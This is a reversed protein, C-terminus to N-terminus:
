MKSVDSSDTSIKKQSPLQWSPRLVLGISDDLSKNEKADNDITDDDDGTSSIYISSDKEDLSSDSDELISCANSGDGKLLQIESDSEVESSILSDRGENASIDKMSSAIERENVAQLVDSTSHDDNSNTGLNSVSELSVVHLSEGEEISMNNNVTIINDKIDSSTIDDTVMESSNLSVDPKITDHTSDSLSSVQMQDNDNGSMRKITEEIVSADHRESQIHEVVQNEPLTDTISHDETIDKVDPNSVSELSVVNLSEVEEFSSMDNNGTIVINYNIDSNTIDDTVMESSNLSIDPKIIDHTSDSMTSVRQQDDDNGPMSEITEVVVSADQRESQIHEVVQNETHIDTIPHHEVIDKVDPLKSADEAALPIASLEDAMIESNTENSKQSFTEAASSKGKSYNIHDNEYQSCPLPEISNEINNMTSQTMSFSSVNSQGKESDEEQDVLNKPNGSADPLPTTSRSKLEAEALQRDIWEMLSETKNTIDTNRTEVVVNQNQVEMPKIEFNTKVKDREADTVLEDTTSCKRETEYKLTGKEDVSSTGGVQLPQCNAQKGKIDDEQTETTDGGKKKRFFLLIAAIASIGALTVVGVQKLSM